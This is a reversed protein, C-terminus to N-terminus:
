FPPDIVPEDDEIGKERRKEELGILELNLKVNLAQVSTLKPNGELLQLKAKVSTNAIEPNTRDFLFLHQFKSDGMAQRNNQNLLERLPLSSVERLKAQGILNRMSRGKLMAGKTGKGNFQDLLDYMPKIEQEILSMMEMSTAMEPLLGLANTLLEAQERQASKLKRVDPVPIHLLRDELASDYSVTSNSAGIIFVPPLHFGAVERSTFIDLTGNFVEPFARLLEDMLLIDGPKLSTWVTSHLMHLRADDTGMDVPMQVGEVELPSWRSLNVTHLKVKLINAALQVVTSKGCGPPGVLHPMPSRVDGNMAMVYLKLIRELM